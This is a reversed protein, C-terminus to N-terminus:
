FTFFNIGDFCVCMEARWRGFMGRPSSLMRLM